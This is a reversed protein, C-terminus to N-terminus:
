ETYFYRRLQEEPIYHSAQRFIAKLTGTDIITHLPVTLIQKNGEPSIRRLKVHSGHQAHIYFDFGELIKIVDRGSLRKLKPSM